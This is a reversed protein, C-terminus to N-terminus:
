IRNRLIFPVQSITFIISIPFIGFLKFSVWFDTSCFRWVVENLIALFVFFLGWRKSLILLSQEKIKIGGEEFLYGILPKKSFYGYFLIGAFILNILTPKIKIFLDDNFVVALLGFITLLICSFLAMKAIKKTMLYAVLLAIITSFVLVITSLFIEGGFVKYSVFFLTLPVYDCIIKAISNKM